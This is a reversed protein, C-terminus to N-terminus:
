RGNGYNGGPRRKGDSRNFKESGARNIYSIRFYQIIGFSEFSLSIMTLNYVKIRHKDLIIIFYTNAKMGAHFFADGGVNGHTM